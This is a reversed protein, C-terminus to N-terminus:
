SKLLQVPKNIVQSGNSGVCVLEWRDGATLSSFEIQYEFCQHKKYQAIARFKPIGTLGTAGGLLEQGILSEGILVGSPTYLTASAGVVSVPIDEIAVSGLYETRLTATLTTNPLMYGEIFVKDIDGLHTRDKFNWYGFRAVCEYPAPGEPTDDYWQQTNWLQYLQPYQASCGYEVSDIIMIRSIGWEQPPQWIRSSNIETNSDVDDRQQYIYTKGSLPAIIYINDGIARLAGDTFDELELEQKVRLSVSPYKTSFIDKFAGFLRLQNDQGLYVITDAISGLFEHALAASKAAGVKKEVKIIVLRDNTGLTQQVPLPTNPTCIYWANSGAPIYASESVVIVGRPLEDIVISDPDGSVLDGGNVFDSYNIDSSFYVTPSSYSGVILQNTITAIFDAAYDAVPIEDITLISQYGLVGTTPTGSINILFQDGVLTYTYTSGSVVISSGIAPYGDTFGAARWDSGDATQLSNVLTYTELGLGVGTNVDDIGIQTATDSTPANFFAILNTMTAEKTAGILVYGVFNSSSIGSLSTKFVISISASQSPSTNAVAFSIVDDQSPNASFVFASRADPGAPDPLNNNAAVIGTGGITVSATMTETVTNGSILVGATNVTGVGDTIAGSWSYISNGGNVFILLEQQIPESWWPSFVFRTNDFTELTLWDEDHLVQFQGDALVRIDREQAFSTQWEYTSKIGNLSTDVDLYRKLGPRVAINDNDDKYVNKSGYVLYQPEVKTPDSSSDYGPFEREGTGVSFFDFDDQRATM